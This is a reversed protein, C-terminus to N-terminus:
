SLRSIHNGSWSVQLLNAEHVAGGHLMHIHHLAAATSLACVGVLFDFGAGVACIDVGAPLM